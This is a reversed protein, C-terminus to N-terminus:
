MSSIFLWQLTALDTPFTSMSFTHTAVIHSSKKILEWCGMDNHFDCRKRSSGKIVIIVNFSLLKLLNEPRTRRNSKDIYPHKMSEHVYEKSGQLYQSSSCFNTDKWSRLTKSKLHIMTVGKFSLLMKGYKTHSSM